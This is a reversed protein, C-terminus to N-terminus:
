ELAESPDAKAAAEKEFDKHRMAIAVNQVCKYTKGDRDIPFESQTAKRPIMGALAILDRIWMLTFGCKHYDYQNAQSGYIAWMTVSSPKHSLLEGAAWEMSPSIIYMEGDEKLVNRLNKITELMRSHEIHELVHSAVVIDFEEGFPLPERIDLHYEADVEEDIDLRVVEIDPFALSAQSKTGCGVDLARLKKEM